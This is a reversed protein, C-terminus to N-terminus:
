SFMLKRTGAADPIPLAVATAMQWGEPTRVWTVIGVIVASRYAM